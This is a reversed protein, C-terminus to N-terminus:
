IKSQNGCFAGIFKHRSGGGAVFCGAAELAKDHASVTVCNYCAGGKQAGTGGLGPCCEDEAATCAPSPGPGPTPSPGPGPPPPSRVPRVIHAAGPM